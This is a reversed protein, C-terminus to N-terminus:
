IMVNHYNKEKSTNKSQPCIEQIVIQVNIIIVNKADIILRILLQYNKVAFIM